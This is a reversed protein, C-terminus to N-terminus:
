KLDECNYIFDVINVNKIGDINDQFIFDSVFLYRSYMERIEYFLKYECKKTNEDDINKSVQIYYYEFSGKRAIFDIELNGIKGVSLNYNKYKLYSFLVNELVM